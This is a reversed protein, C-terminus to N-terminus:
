NVVVKKVKKLTLLNMPDSGLGEVNNQVFRLVQDYYLVVVPADEMILKEMQRYYGFRVSDNVSAMAKEYLQDFGPNKFHTYNPGQPSFNRGYFLSLYNEADPYDAIWSARFFPLKAQAKMEKLAAPPSIDIRIEIGIEGAKYQLYKCIDLYDSTTSLTVPPMGRGEPYGAEALLKRAKEPDYNYHITTSDFSPMGKPIMGYLGPTGINNRLFEIMKARDFSLNIAQRVKRNVVPNKKVTSAEPDVLFGLYETNLYPEAILRFKSNFGPKLKGDRTLLEDKYSPDIGSMFDLKGKVFELFASQKDALFTIAVADLFPLRSGNEFEFYAPNKILVLKVGEKWMMFQFPGTGVPNKRFDTGYMEVAEHPIVSCYLTTLIGLFPPFPQKLRIIFTSDDPALFSYKAGTKEVYNFIWSGPSAVSPDTIRSFSYLVDAAVVRRGKGAPFVPTSHFYVDQRLHFCYEKGDSSIAWAKAICPLIELHDGLQVLGNFIQHTAWINAQDRAYAPDLSTIGAAENYRFVTKNGNKGPGRSCGLVMLLILVSYFINKM